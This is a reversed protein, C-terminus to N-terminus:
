WEMASQPDPDPESAPKAGIELHTAPRNRIDEPRPEGDDGLLALGLYGATSKTGVKNKKAIV